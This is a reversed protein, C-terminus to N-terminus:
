RNSRVHNSAVICAAIGAIVLAGLVALAVPLATLTSGSELQRAADIVYSLPNVMAAARMWPSLEDVPAFFGTFFALGFVVLPVLGTASASATRIAVAISLLAIGLSLALIVLAMGGTGAWNTPRFGVVYAGAITAASQIAVAVLAAVVPGTHFPIASDTSTAARSTM